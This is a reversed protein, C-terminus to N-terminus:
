VNLKQFYNRPIDKYASNKASSTGAISINEKTKGEDAQVIHRRKQKKEHDEDWPKTRYTSITKATQRDKVKTHFM